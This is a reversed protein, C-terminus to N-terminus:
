PVGVIIGLTPGKGANNRYIRIVDFGVAKCLNELSWETWSYWHGEREQHINHVDPVEIKATGGSGVVRYMERVCDIPYELHELTHIIEVRRMSDDKFPLHHADGRVDPPKTEGVHQESEDFKELNIFDPRYDGGSGINLYM